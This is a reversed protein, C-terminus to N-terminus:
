KILVVRIDNAPFLRCLCSREYFIQVSPTLNFLPELLRNPWFIGKKYFSIKKDQIAQFGFDFYYNKPHSHVFFNFTSISFLKKHTPDSYNTRSTFHPVRVSLKGGPQLIRYLDKLVPIYDLHELINDCRIEVFWDTEFPLPVKQIDYVMDVGDLAVSDVNIWGKRIIRGCGLNLRKSKELKNIDEM